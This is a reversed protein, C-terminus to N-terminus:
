IIQIIIWILAIGIGIGIASLIFAPLFTLTSIFTIARAPLTIIVGCMNFVSILLRGINSLFSGISSIMDVITEFFTAVSKAFDKVVSVISMSSPQYLFTQILM